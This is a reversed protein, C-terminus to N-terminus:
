VVEGAQEGLRVRKAQPRATHAPARPSAPQLSELLSPPL